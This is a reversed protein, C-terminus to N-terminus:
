LVSYASARCACIDSSTGQVDTMVIPEDTLVFNSPIAIKDVICGSHVVLIHPGPIGDITLEFYQFSADCQSQGESSFPVPEVSVTAVPCGAPCGQTM